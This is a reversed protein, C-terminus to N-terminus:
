VTSYIYYISIISDYILPQLGKLFDFMIIDKTEKKETVLYIANDALIFMRNRSRYGNRDFKIAPCAYQLASM